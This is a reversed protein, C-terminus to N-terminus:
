YPSRHRNWWSRASDVPERMWQTAFNAVHYMTVPQVRHVPAEGEARAIADMIREHCWPFLTRPLETPAVFKTVWAELNWHRRGGTIEALFVADGASRLGEWTYVGVLGLINVTFGTEEECERAAAAAPEEDRDVHGGPLEWGPPWPRFQVLV